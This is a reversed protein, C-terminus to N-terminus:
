KGAQPSTGWTQRARSSGDNAKSNPEPAPARLPLKAMGRGPDSLAGHVQEEDGRGADAVGHKRRAQETPEDLLMRADADGHSDAAERRRQEGRHRAQLADDDDVLLRPIAM